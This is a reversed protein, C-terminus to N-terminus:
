QKERLTLGYPKTEDECIMPPEVFAKVYCGNEAEPCNYKDNEFRQSNGSYEACTLFINEYVPINTAFYFPLNINIKLINLYSKPTATPYINTNILWFNKELENLSKNEYHFYNNNFKTRDFIYEFEYVKNCWFDGSDTEEDYEGNNLVIEQDTLSDVIKVESRKVIKRLDQESFYFVDGFLSTFRPFYYSASYYKIESNPEDYVFQYVDNIKQCNMQEYTNGSYYPYLIISGNQRFDQRGNKTVLDSFIKFQEPINKYYANEFSVIIEGKVIIKYDYITDTIPIPITFNNAVQNLLNFPKKIYSWTNPDIDTLYNQISPALVSDFRGPNNGHYGNYYYFINHRYKNSKTSITYKYDSDRTLYFWEPIKLIKDDSYNDNTFDDSYAQNQPIKIYYTFEAFPNFGNPYNIIGIRDDILYRAKCFTSSYKTVENESDIEYKRKQSLYKLNNKREAILNEDCYYFNDIKFPMFYKIRIKDSRITQM